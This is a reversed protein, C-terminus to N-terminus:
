ALRKTRMDEVHATLTARFAAVEPNQEAGRAAALSTWAFLELVSYVGDTGVALWVEAPTDTVLGHRHLLPWQQQVLELLAKEEGPLARYIALVEFAGGSFM